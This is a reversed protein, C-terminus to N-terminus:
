TDIEAGPRGAAAGATTLAGAGADDDADGSAGAVPELWGPAAAVLRWAVMTSASDSVISGSVIGFKMPTGGGSDGPEVVAVGVVPAVPDLVLEVPPEVLVTLEPDLVEDVVDVPLVTGADPEALAGGTLGVVDAEPPVPETGAPELEADDVADELPDVAPDVAGLPDEPAAVDPRVDPPILVLTLGAVVWPVNCGRLTARDPLVPLCWPVIATNVTVPL